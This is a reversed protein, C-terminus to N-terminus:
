LQIINYLDNIKDLVKDATMLVAPENKIGSQHINVFMGSELMGTSRFHFFLLM